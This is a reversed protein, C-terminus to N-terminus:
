NEPARLAALTGNYHDALLTCALDADRALVADLIAQHEAPAGERRAPSANINMSINRYRVAQDMMTACFGQLWRSGCRSILLRHFENHRIDWEESKEHAAEPPLLRSTRALRHFALVLDEEWDEGGCAISERLALTELQIRTKVLEELDDIELPAVFFGRQNQRQVLGEASLRNLAERVPVAGIGYRESVTEIRLKEEPMLFGLLIDRRIVDYAQESLSRPMDSIQETM